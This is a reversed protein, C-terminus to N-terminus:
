TAQRIFKGVAIERCVFLDGLLAVERLSWRLSGELVSM